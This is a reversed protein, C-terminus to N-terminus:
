QHSGLTSIGGFLEARIQASLLVTLLIGSLAGWLHAKHNIGTQRNGSFYSYAVFGVAYVIAPIGIPIFMLYLKTGPEFLIFSFVVASVGGSAGLSAYEQNDKHQLVTSINALVISTLYLVTLGIPGLYRELPFAFFFFSLMNLGLHGMSGHVFGCTLMQYWKRDYYVQDPHLMLRDLLEPKRFAVLSIDVTSVILILAASIM